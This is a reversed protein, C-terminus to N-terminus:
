VRTENTCNEDEIDHDEEFDDSTEEAYIAVLESFSLLLEANDPFSFWYFDQKGTSMYKIYETRLIDYNEDTGIFELEREELVLYILKM